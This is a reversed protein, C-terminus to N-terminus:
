VSEQVRLAGAVIANQDSLALDLLAREDTFAALRDKRYVAFLTAADPATRRLAHLAPCGEDVACLRVDIPENVKKLANLPSTVNLEALARREEPPSALIFLACATVSVNWHGTDAIGKLVLAFLSAAVLRGLMVGVMVARARGLRKQTLAYLMRGGDLPLAPLLNFLMLALNVRLHLLASTPSLIGWHALAATVTLMFLNGAPGAAAVVFLQGASLVYLNGPQAAGGFPMLRLKEIRVGALRAALLHSAEHVTLASLTAFLEERLGLQFGLLPLLLLLPHACLRTQGLRLEMM